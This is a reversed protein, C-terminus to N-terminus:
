TTRSGVMSSSCDTRGHNDEEEDSGRRVTSGKDWGEHDDEEEDGEGM